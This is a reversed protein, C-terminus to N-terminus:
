QKQLILRNPGYDSGGGSQNINLTIYGTCSFVYGAVDDAGVGQATYETGSGYKGYITAPIKATGTAPDINVILPNIVTGGNPYVQNLNIQNAGPGDTVQVLDGPLWDQWDDRIVEYTGTMGGTFPCTIYATFAFAANYYPGTVLGGGGNDGTTNVDFSYGETTVSRTYFTYSAGPQLDATTIGLSTALESGTITLQTGAGTYPVSKVFHWETTDYSANETAYILIHDIKQGNPYQSVEIGITSTAVQTYDLNLSINKDLTLYSGQGLHSRDSLPNIDGGKKKCADVAILTSIVTLIYLLKKM